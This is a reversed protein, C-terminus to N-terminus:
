AHLQNTASQLLDASTLDLKRRFGIIRPRAIIRQFTQVLRNHLYDLRSQGTQDAIRWPMPGQRFGSKAGEGSGVILNLM